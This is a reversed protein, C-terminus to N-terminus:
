GGLVIRSVRSNRHWFILNCRKFTLTLFKLEIKSLKLIDHPKIRFNLIITNPIGKLTGRSLKLLSKVRYVILMNGKHPIGQGGDQHSAFKARGGTFPKSQTIFLNIQSQAKSM